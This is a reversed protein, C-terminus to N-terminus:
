VRLDNIRVFKNTYLTYLKLPCHLNGKNFAVLYHVLVLQLHHLTKNINERSLHVM